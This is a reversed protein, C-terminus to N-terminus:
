PLLDCYSVPVIRDGSIRFAEILQKLKEHAQEESCSGDLVAEFEIFTGLNDVDDLHIRVNEYLYVTRRKDVQVAVGLAVALLGRMAEGDPVPVVSYDSARPREADGRHYGIMESCEGHETWRQRIKLRGSECRFYTDRQREWTHLTAGVEEAIRRAADLDPYSAKLEINRKMADKGM